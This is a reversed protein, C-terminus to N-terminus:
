SAGTLLFPQFNEPFMKSLYEDNIGFRQRLKQHYAESEVESEKEILQAKLKEEVENFSVTGAETHQQLHFIRYVKNKDARSIQAIPKCYTGVAMTQLVDKHQSSINKETRNAEEVASVTTKDLLLGRTKLTDSLKDIPIQEKALLQYAQEAVAISNLEYPSRISVVEYSWTAEIPHEKAYIEYAARVEKPGVRNIAKSHVMFYDMKRTLLEDHVMKLAEQYTLGLKDINLVVNPGFLEELEQRADGDSVTLKMEAANALILQENIMNNLVDRWFQSYFQHKAPVSSALQPYERHFLLDMKKMVDLVSIAKGNVKVLIRNNVVIRPESSLSSKALSPAAASPVANILFLCCFLYSVKKLM